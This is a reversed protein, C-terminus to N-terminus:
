ASKAGPPTDDGSIRALQQALRRSLDSQVTAMKENRKQRRFRIDLDQRPSAMGFGPGEAPVSGGLGPAGGVDPIEVDENDDPEVVPEMPPKAAGPRSEPLSDLLAADDMAAAAASRPSPPAAARRARGSPDTMGGMETKLLAVDGLDAIDPNRRIIGVMQAYTEPHKSFYVAAAEDNRFGLAAKMEEWGPTSRRMEAVSANLPDPADLRALEDYIVQKSDRIARPSPMERLAAAYGEPGGAMLRDIGELAAMARDAAPGVGVGSFKSEIKQKLEDIEGAAIIQENLYADREEAPIAAGMNATLASALYAEAAPSAFTGEPVPDLGQEARQRNVQAELRRLGEVGGSIGEGIMTQEAAVRSVQPQSALVGQGETVVDTIYGDLVARIPEPVGDESTPSQRLLDEAWQPDRNNDVIANASGDRAARFTAITEDPVEGWFSRTAAANWDALTGLADAYAAHDMAQAKAAEALAAVLGTYSTALATQVSSYSEVTEQALTTEAVALNTLSEALRRRIDAEEFATLGNGIPTARAQIAEGIGEIINGTPKSPTARVEAM